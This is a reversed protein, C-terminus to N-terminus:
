PMVFYDNYELVQYQFVCKQLCSVLNTLASTRELDTLQPPPSLQSIVTSTNRQQTKVVRLIFSECMERNPNSNNNSTAFVASTYITFFFSKRAFKRKSAAIFGIILHSPSSYLM